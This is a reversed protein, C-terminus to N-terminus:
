NGLASNRLSGLGVQTIDLGTRAITTDLYSYLNGVVHSVVHGIDKRILSLDNRLVGFHGTLLHIIRANHWQNHKLMFHLLFGFFGVTLSIKYFSNIAVSHNKKGCAALDDDARHPLLLKLISSTQLIERKIISSAGSISSISSSLLYGPSSYGEDLSTQSTALSDQELANGMLTSKNISEQQQEQEQTLILAELSEKEVIDSSGNSIQDPLGSSTCLVSHKNFEGFWVDFTKDADVLTTLLHSSILHQALSVIENLNSDSIRSFLSAPSLVKHVLDADLTVLDAQHSIFLEAFIAQKFHLMIAAYVYMSAAVSRHSFIFDWIIMLHPFHNVDHSFITIVSLLAQIFEYDFYVGNTVIFSNSTHRVLEFLLPDESRVICPILKLHNVSLGIDSIMFDRLHDVTLKELIQFAMEDNGNPVDNCVLLVVSAIDHYGQYYNLCPHKRLVRVILSFLRKRISEVDEKSLIATYSSSVSHSFSIFHLVVTFLRKIDLMVQNEDKHPHLDNTGFSDPSVVIHDGVSLSPIDLFRKWARYRLDSTVLGGPTRALLSVQNQDGADLAQQVLKAKNIRLIELSDESPLSAVVDFEVWEKELQGSSRRRQVQM